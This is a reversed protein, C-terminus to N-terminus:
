RGAEPPSDAPLDAPRFVDRPVLYYEAEESSVFSSDPFFALVLALVLGIVVVGGAPRFVQQLDPTVPKASSWIRGQLWRMFLSGAVAILAVLLITQGIGLGFLQDLRFVGRFDSLYFEGWVPFLDGFLLSGAFFGLIFVLADLKGNVLAALATGPCYGGVVMGVGFILGGVAMPALYTPVFYVKSLDLFGILTLGWLGLMAFVIATFMAVPVSVERLYFVRGIRRGDTFGGHYLGFGFVFGTVVALILNTTESILGTKAFPAILDM